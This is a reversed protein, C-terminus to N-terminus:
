TPAIVKTIKDSNRPPLMSAEGVVSGPLRPQSHRNPDSSEAGCKKRAQVVGGEQSREDKGALIYRGEKGNGMWVTVTRVDWSAATLRRTM